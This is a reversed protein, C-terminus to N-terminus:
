KLSEFALFNYPHDTELLGEFCNVLLPDYAEIQEVHIDWQLKNSVSGHNIRCPIAGTTYAYAFNTKQKQKVDAFPNATKIKTLKDSPKGYPVKGSVGSSKEVM